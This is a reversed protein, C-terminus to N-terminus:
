SKAVTEIQSLQALDNGLFGPQKKEVAEIEPPQGELFHAFILPAKENSFGAFQDFAQIGAAEATVSRRADPGLQQVELGVFQDHVKEDFM